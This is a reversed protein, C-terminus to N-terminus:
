YIGDSYVLDEVNEYKVTSKNKRSRRYSSPTSEYYKRFQSIFYSSSSFNNELAIQTISKDTIELQLAAHKLRQCLIYETLSLGTQERFVHRFWDYSYGSMEALDHLNLKEYFHEDIYKKIYQINYSHSSDNGSFFHRLVSIVLSHTMANLMSSYFPQKQNMEAYMNQMASHVFNDNYDKYIGPLLPYEQDYYRFGMFLLISDTSAKEDHTTHPPIISFTNPHYSYKKGDLIFKGHGSCYYVLEYCSHQHKPAYFGASNEQYKLFDLCFDEM